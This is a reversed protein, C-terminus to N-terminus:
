VDKIGPFADKRAYNLMEKQYIKDSERVSELDKSAKRAYDYGNLSFVNIFEKTTENSCDKALTEGRKFYVSEGEEVATPQIQNLKRVARSHAKQTQTNGLNAYEPLEKDLIELVPRFAPTKLDIERLADLPYLKDCLVILQPNTQIDRMIDKMENNQQKIESIESQLTQNQQIVTDLRSSMQKMLDNTQSAENIQRMAEAQDLEAYQRKLAANKAKSGCKPKGSPKNAERSIHCQLAHLTEFKRGCDNCKMM